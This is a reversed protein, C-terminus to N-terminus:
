DPPREIRARLDPVGYAQEPSMIWHPLDAVLSRLVEPESEVLLMRSSADVVVADELGRLQAVDGAPAPGPGHYRLIFRVGM